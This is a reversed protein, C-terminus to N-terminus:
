RYLRPVDMSAATRRVPLEVTDGSKINPAKSIDLLAHGLGVRGVIPLEKDQWKAWYRSPSTLRIFRHAPEMTLGDAFGCAVSAVKMPNLALFESGYGVTEGRRLSQVSLIKAKFSWINKVPFPTPTPNVGYLLNGIRAMDLRWAPFDLFVSTNACTKILPRKVMAEIEKAAQLFHGLKIEAETKNLGPLYDIHTAIGIMELDPRKLMSRVLTIANKPKAGWRGLGLDLDVFIRAKKKALRAAQTYSRMLEERDLTLWAGRRVLPALDAPHDLAPALLAAQIPKVPAIGLVRKAETASWIGFADCLNESALRRVIAELGHGYANSKVAALFKVGPGLEKRISRANAQLENLDVEVWKSHTSSHNAM